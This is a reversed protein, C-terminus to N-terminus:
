GRVVMAALGGGPPAQQEAGGSIFSRTTGFIAGVLGSAVPRLHKDADFESEFVTTRRGRLQGGPRIGVKLFLAEPASGTFLGHADPALGARRALRLLAPADLIDALPESELRLDGGAGPINALLIVENHALETGSVAMVRRSHLTTDRGIAADQVRDSDVEGLAIGAGLAAVARAFATSGARAAVGPPLEALHRRPLVPSKVFVLAVQDATAGADAMAARVAEAVALAHARGGRDAVPIAPSTAVGLALRAPGAPDRPADETLEAMLYGFPTIVGECGTSFVMTTRALMAEGLVNRVAATAANLALERSFDNLTATGETKGLIALRRIRGAQLASLRQALARADGPGDCDHASLLLTM